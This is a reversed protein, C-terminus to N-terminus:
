IDRSDVGEKEITIIHTQKGEGVAPKLLFNIPLEMVHQTKEKKIQSPQEWRPTNMKASAFVNDEFSM